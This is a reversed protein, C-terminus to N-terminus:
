REFEQEYKRAEPDILDIGQPRYEMQIADMFESMQKVNMDSTMPICEFALAKQEPTGHKLIPEYLPKWKEVWDPRDRVMLPLGFRYKCRAKVTHMPDGIENGIQSYWKHATRNQQGTRDAGKVASVTLPLEQGELFRVWAARDEPTKLIRSPM